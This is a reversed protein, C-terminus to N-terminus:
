EGDDSSNRGDIPWRGADEPWGDDAPQESYVPAEGSSRDNSYIEPEDKTTTGNM